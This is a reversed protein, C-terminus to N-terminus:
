CAEFGRGMRSDPLFAAFLDPSVAVVLMAAAAAGLLLVAPFSARSRRLLAHRVVGAVLAAGALGLAARGLEVPLIALTM